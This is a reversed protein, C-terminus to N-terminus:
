LAVQSLVCATCFLSTNLVIFFAVFSRMCIPCDGKESRWQQICAMCWDDHLCPLIKANRVQDCCIVCLSNDENEERQSQSQSPSAASAAAHVAQTHPRFSSPFAPKRPAIAMPDLSRRMAEQLEAEYRSDLERQKRERRRQQEAAERKSRALAAQLEADRRRRQQQQEEDLERRSLELAAKMESDSPSPSPSRPPSVASSSPHDEPPPASQIPRVKVGLQTAPGFSLQRGHFGVARVSQCTVPDLDIPIDDEFTQSVRVKYEIGDVVVSEYGQVSHHPRVLFFQTSPIRRM